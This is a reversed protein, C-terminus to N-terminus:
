WGAEWDLDESGMSLEQEWQSRYKLLPSDGVTELSKYLGSILGKQRPAMQCLYEFFTHSDSPPGQM